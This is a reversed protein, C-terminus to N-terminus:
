ELSDIYKAWSENKIVKESSILILLNRKALIVSQPGKSSTGIYVTASTANITSTANFRKALEAVKANTDQDFGKPLPQQSVRITVDDIKDTYSFVPDSDPPSVRKWGGLQDVPTNNPSVTHFGPNSQSNSASIQILIIVVISAVLISAGIISQKRSPKPLRSFKSSRKSPRTTPQPSPTAPRPPTVARLPRSDISGGRPTSAVPRARNGSQKRFEM